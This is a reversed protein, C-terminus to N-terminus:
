KNFAEILKDISYKFLIFSKPSDKENDL